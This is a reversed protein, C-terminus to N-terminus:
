LLGSGISFLFSVDCMNGEVFIRGEEHVHFPFASIHRHNQNMDEKRKEERKKRRGENRVDVWEIFLSSSPLFGTFRRCGVCGTGRWACSFPFHYTDKKAKRQEKRKEEREEKREEERGDV